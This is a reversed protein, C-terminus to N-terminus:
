VELEVEDERVAQADVDHVDEASEGEILVDVEHVRIAAKTDFSILIPIDDLLSVECEVQDLRRFGAKEYGPVPGPHTATRFVRSWRMVDSDFIRDGSFSPLVPM